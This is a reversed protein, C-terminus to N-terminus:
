GGNALRQELDTLTHVAFRNGAFGQIRKGVLSWRIPATIPLFLQEEDIKDAAQQLLAYRQQPIPTQRAADILQDIEPDCISAAGCRFNRVFWAGSSSPAVEDILVFDASQATQAREVSLGLAGWSRALVSLVADGGPGVPLAVTIASKTQKGFLRDAEVRLQQLRDTLPTGLWAPAVPAAMGDLGPELLSARSGLNPVGFAAVIADRDIAQSLLRRVEPKDIGNEKSRPVLGFLGSAPDFVLSGRPLRARRAYPLEAFTGGLVLDTNGNVFSAIAEEVPAGSLLVEEKTTSEEDVSVINRTLRLAGATKADSTATFPGTGMKDRLIALEPQAFLTLLNPRPAVLRIEIVRDTMAVIDDIAGVTDKLPNHSTPGIARKLIKAVQQATIKKGDPWDASAIRFIYSLGDDSVNWREALGPVINGVADFRVLGQAINQLLVADSTSLPARVPDSVQPKGGIVIVRPAGEPQQRCSPAALVALSM